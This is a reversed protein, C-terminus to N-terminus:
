GKHAESLMLYCFHLWKKRTQGKRYIENGSKSWILPFTLHLPFVLPLWLVNPETSATCESTKCSSKVGEEISRDWPRAMEVKRMPLAHAGKPLRRSRHALVRQPLLRTCHMEVLANASWFPEWWEGGKGLQWCLFKRQGDAAGNTLTWWSTWLIERGFSYKSRKNM